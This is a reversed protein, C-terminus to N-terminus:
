DLPNIYPNIIKREKNCTMQEIIPVLHTIDEDLLLTINHTSIYTNIHTRIDSKLTYTNFLEQLIPYKIINAIKVINETTVKIKDNSAMIDIFKTLISPRVDDDAYVILEVFNDPFSLTNGIFYNMIQVYFKTFVFNKYPLSSDIYLLNINEDFIVCPILIDIKKTHTSKIIRDILCIGIIQPVIFVNKDHYIFCHKLKTTEDLLMNKYIFIEHKSPKYYCSNLELVRPDIYESLLKFECITSEFFRFIKQISLQQNVSEDEEENLTINIKTPSEKKEINSRINVLLNSFDFPLVCSLDNLKCLDQIHTLTTKGTILKKITTDHLKGYGSCLTITEDDPIFNFTNYLDFKKYTIGDNLKCLNYLARLNQTLISNNNSNLLKIENNIIDSLLGSTSTDRFTKNTGVFIIKQRITEPDNIKRLRYMGQAVDRFRATKGLLVIGIYGNPLKIDIGTTHQQDFYYFINENNPEDNFMDVIGNKNVYYPVHSSNWYVVKTIDKRCDFIINSIKDNDIGVLLGSIDIIVNAINYKTVISKTFDSVNQEDFSFDIQTDSRTIIQCLDDFDNKKMKHIIMKTYVTEHTETLEFLDDKNIVHDSLLTDHIDYINYPCPTGTFGAKYPTYLSMILDVGSINLQTITYLIENHCILKCITKIIEIDSLILNIIEDSIDNYSIEGSVYKLLDSRLLIKYLPTECKCEYPLSSLSKILIEFYYKKRSTSYTKMDKILHEIITLCLVLIPNSFQSGIVPSEVYKFPIVVHINQHDYTGYEKRNTFSACTKLLEDRFMFLVYLMKYTYPSLGILDLNDKNNINKKIDDCVDYMNSIKKTCYKEIDEIVQNDSVVFHPQLSFKGTHKRLIEKFEDPQLRYIDNLIDFLINFIDNFQPLSITFGNPYNLESTIPNLITDIEDFLFINKSSSSRVIDSDNIISCKLSTDSIIYIGIDNSTKLVDTCEKHHMRDEILKIIPIGLFHYVTETLYNYSQEILQDPLINFLNIVKKTALLSYFYCRLLICPTIMKTKGKGMMMSYVNNTLPENLRNYMERKTIIKDSSSPLDISIPYVNKILKNILDFNEQRIPLDVVIQFFIEFPTMCNLISDLPTDNITTKSLISKSLMSFIVDRLNYSSNSIIIKADHCLEYLYFETLTSHTINSDPPFYFLKYLLNTTFEPIKIKKIKFNNLPTGCLNLTPKIYKPNEPSVIANGEKLSHLVIEPNLNMKKCLAIFLSFILKSTPIDLVSNVNATLNAIDTFDIDATDDTFDDFPSTGIMFSKIYINVFNDDIWKTGILKKNIKYENSIIEIEDFCSFQSNVIPDINRYEIHGIAIPVNYFTNVNINKNNVISDYLSGSATNNNHKLKRLMTERNTHNYSKYINCLELMNSFNNFKAQSYILYNIIKRKNIKPINLTNHLSIFEYTFKKGSNENSELNIQGIFEHYEDYRLTVDPLLKLMLICLDNDANRKVLWLNPTDLLMKNIFMDNVKTIKYSNNFTIESKNLTIFLGINILEIDIEKTDLNYWGIIDYRPVSVLLKNLIMRLNHNNVSFLDIYYVNTNKKTIRFTKKDCTIIVDYNVVSNNNKHTGNFNDGDKEWVFENIFNPTYMFFPSILKFTNSYRVCQTTITNHSSDKSSYLQNTDNTRSPYKINFSFDCNMNYRIGDPIHEYTVNVYGLSKNVNDIPISCKTSGRTTEITNYKKGEFNITKQFINRSTTFTKGGMVMVNAILELLKREPSIIIKKDKIFYYDLSKVVEYHISKVNVTSSPNQNNVIMNIINDIMNNEFTYHIKDTLDLIEDFTLKNYNINNIIAVTLLQSNSTENLFDYDFFKGDDINIKPIDPFLIRFWDIFFLIINYNVQELIIGGNNIKNVLNVIDKHHSKILISLYPLTVSNMMEQMITNNYINFIDGSPKVHGHETIPSIRSNLYKPDLTKAYEFFNTIDRDFGSDKFSSFINDNHISTFRQQTGYYNFKNDIVERSYLTTSHIGKNYEYDPSLLCALSMHIMNSTEDHLVYIIYPFAYENLTPVYNVNYCSFVSKIYMHFMDIKHKNSFTDESLRSLHYEKKCLLHAIPSINNPETKPKIWQQNSTHLVHTNYTIPPIYIDDTTIPSINNICYLLFLLDSSFICTDFDIMYKSLHNKIYNIDEIISPTVNLCTSFSCFFEFIHINYHEDFKKYILKYTKVNDSCIEYVYDYENSVYGSKIEIYDNIEKYMLKYMVTLLAFMYVNCLTELYLKKKYLLMIEYIKSVYTHREKDSFKKVTEDTMSILYVLPLRCVLMNYYIWMVGYDYKRDDQLCTEMISIFENIDKEERRNFDCLLTINRNLITMRNDDSVTSIVDNFERPIDHVYIPNNFTMDTDLLNNFNFTNNIENYLNMIVTIETDILSSVRPSMIKNTNLTDKFLNINIRLADLVYNTVRKFNTNRIQTLINNISQLGSYAMFNNIMTKKTEVKISTKFMDYIAFFYGMLFAKYSCDGTKQAILPIYDAIKNIFSDSLSAIKEYKFFIANLAGYFKNLETGNNFITLIENKMDENINEFIIIGKVDGNSDFGHYDSLLGSNCFAFTYTTGTKHFVISTAHSSKSMYLVNYKTYDVSETKDLFVINSIATDISNYTDGFIIKLIVSNSRVYDLFLSNIISFISGEIKEALFSSFGSFLDLKNVTDM